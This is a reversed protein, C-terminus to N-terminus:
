GHDAGHAGARVGLGELEGVVTTAEDARRHYGVFVDAGCRGLLLATARGIGRSGGTVLARKGHLDIM